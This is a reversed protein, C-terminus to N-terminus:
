RYEIKLKNRTIMFCEQNMYMSLGKAFKVIDLNQDGIITVCLTNELVYKGNEHLYGGEVQQVSYNIRERTFFESVTNILESASVVEEKTQQDNCGIFIEYQVDNIM